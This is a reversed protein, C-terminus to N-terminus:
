RRDGAGDISHDKRDSVNGVAGIARAEGSKNADRWARVKTEATRSLAFVLFQQRRFPATRGAVSAAGVGRSALFRQSRSRLRM